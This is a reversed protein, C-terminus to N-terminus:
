VFFIWICAFLIQLQSFILSFAFPVCFLNITFIELKLHFFLINNTICSLLIEEVTSSKWKIGWSEFMKVLFHMYLITKNEILNQTLWLHFFFTSIKLSHLRLMVKSHFHYCFPPPCVPILSSHLVKIFPRITM